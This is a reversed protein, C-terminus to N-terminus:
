RMRMVLRRWNGCSWVLSPPMQEAPAGAACTDALIKAARAVDRDHKVRRGEKSEDTEGSLLYEIWNELRDRAFVFVIQDFENRSIGDRQAVSWFKEKLSDGDIMDHDLDAWVMLTVDGGM